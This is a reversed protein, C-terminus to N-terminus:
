VSSLRGILRRQRTRKRMCGFPVMAGVAGAPKPEMHRQFFQEPNCGSIAVSVLSVLTAPVGAGIAINLVAM